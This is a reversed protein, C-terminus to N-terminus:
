NQENETVTLILIKKSEPTVKFREDIRLGIVWVIKESNTLVLQENKRHSSIKEDSLFDSIKKNGKMGIPQFKDGAKWRRIEFDKKLGDCLIFEVSKDNTFKFMKRKVESISIIKGEVVKKQGIKIRTSKKKKAFSNNKGLILEDRERLAIIGSELHISKGTQAELLDVIDFINKSSLEIGFAKEIVSKLFIGRLSKNLRSFAKLDIRIKNEYNKVVKNSIEDIKKEIFSNVESIIRSTNSIKEELKPNLRQKLKPIIENRLFNREYDSSLNSKDLRFSIEKSRLYKRIEDATLCLIPRIINERKVPIGALGNLGTGKIFNLLITEVNDSSNHATAIKNCDIKEAAKNLEAYRLYRGAEETSLKKKEAYAKVNKSVRILKINITKCFEVCLNEDATAAKGRLQHNLHFAAIDIKFRNKFKMLLALLFVSDAGGSLAVLIKDGNNILQHQDIFKLVKQEITKTM